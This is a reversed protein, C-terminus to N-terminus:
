AKVWTFTHNVKMDGLSMDSISTSLGHEELNDAPPEGPERPEPTDKVSEDGGGTVVGEFVAM